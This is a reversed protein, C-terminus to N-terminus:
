LYSFSTSVDHSLGGYRDVGYAVGYGVSYGTTYDKTKILYAKTNVASTSYDGTGKAYAKAYVKGYNTNAYSKAVASAGGKVSFNSRRDKRSLSDIFEIDNIFM